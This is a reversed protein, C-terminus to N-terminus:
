LEDDPDNDAAVRRAEKAYREHREAPVPELTEPDVDKAATVDRRPLSSAAWQFRRRREGDTTAYVVTVLGKDDFERDVLWCRVETM